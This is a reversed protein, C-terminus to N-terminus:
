FSPLMVMVGRTMMLFRGVMVFLRRLVILGLLVLLCSVVRVQSVSVTLMGKMMVDLCRLQMCFLAVSQHRKSRPLSGLLTCSLVFIQRCPDTKKSEHKKTKPVLQLIEHSNIRCALQTM